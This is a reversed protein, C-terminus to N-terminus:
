RITPSGLDIWVQSSWQAIPHRGEGRLRGVSMPLVSCYVASTDIWNVGLELASCPGALSVTDDQPGWRIGLRGGGIAWAGFGPRTIIVLFRAPPRASPENVRDRRNFVAGVM